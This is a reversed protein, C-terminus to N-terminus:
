LFSVRQDSVAWLNKIHDNLWTDWGAGEDTKTATGKRACLLRLSGKPELERLRSQAAPRCIHWGRQGGFNFHPERTLRRGEYNRHKRPITQGEM